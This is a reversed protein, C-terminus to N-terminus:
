IGSYIMMQSIVHEWFAFKDPFAPVFADVAEEWSLDTGRIKAELHEREEISYGAAGWDIIGTVVGDKVLINSKNLDGHTLVMGHHDDEKRALIRSETHDDLPDRHGAPRSNRLAEVVGEIFDHRSEYPGYSADPYTAVSHPHRFITDSCPGGDVTGLFSGRIKRWEQVYHALQSIIDKRTELSMSAWHRSLPEGELRTMIIYGMRSKEDRYVHLVAPVPVNSAKRAVLRLAEAEAVKVTTGVKLITSDSLQLVARPTNPRLDYIKRIQDKLAIPPPEYRHLSQSPLQCPKSSITSSM